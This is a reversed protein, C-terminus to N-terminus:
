RACRRSPKKAPAPHAPRPCSVRPLPGRLRGLAYQEVTMGSAAGVASHSPLANSLASCGALAVAVVFLGLLRCM